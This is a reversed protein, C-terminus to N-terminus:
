AGRPWIRRSTNCQVCGCLWVAEVHVQHAPTPTPTTADAGLVRAPLRCIWPRHCPSPTHARSAGRSAPDRQRSKFWKHQLAEWASIRKTPDATLMSVVMFQADASLQRWASLESTPYKAARVNKKLHYEPDDPPLKYPDFPPEGVLLEYLVCGFSWMDCMPGYRRDFVEPAMNCPTGICEKGAGISKFEVLSQSAMGESVSMMASHAIDEPVEMMCAAGFDAVKMQATAARSSRLLNALKIDRHVVGQSHLYSLASLVQFAARAALGEDWEQDSMIFHTLEGGSVFELVAWIRNPSQYVDHLTTIHHHRLKKLIKVEREVARQLSASNRLPIKKLAYFDGTVREQVRYVASTVGEGLKRGVHYKKKLDHEVVKDLRREYEALFSKDNIIRVFMLPLFGFIGNCVFLLIPVAMAICLIILAIGAGSPFGVEPCALDSATSSM